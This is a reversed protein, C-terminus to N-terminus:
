TVSYLYKEYWFYKNLAYWIGCMLRHGPSVIIWFVSPGSDCASNETTICKINWGRQVETRISPMSNTVTSRTLQANIQESHPVQYIGWCHHHSKCNICILLLIVRWKDPLVLFYSIRHLHTKKSNLENDLIKNLFQPMVYM